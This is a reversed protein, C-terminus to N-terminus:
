RRESGLGQGCLASDIAIDVHQVLCPRTSDRTGPHLWSRIAASSRNWTNIPLRPIPVVARGDTQAHGRRRLSIIFDSFWVSLDYWDRRSEDECHTVLTISVLVFTPNCSTLMRELMLGRPRFPEAAAACLATAVAVLQTRGHGYAGLSCPLRASRFPM